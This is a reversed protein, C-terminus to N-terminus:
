KNEQANKVEPKKGKRFRKKDDENLKIIKLNSPHFLVLVKNGDKKTINIGEINVKLKDRNVKSVKGVKGKLKGRMIKVEDGKRLEINRIDHKKRLVKDLTSGM